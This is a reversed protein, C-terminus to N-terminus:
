TEHNTFELKNPLKSVNCTSLTATLFVSLCRIWRSTGKFWFIGMNFTVTNKTYAKKLFAYVHEIMTGQLYMNSHSPVIETYNSDHKWGGAGVECYMYVAEVDEVLAAAGPVPGGTVCPDGM